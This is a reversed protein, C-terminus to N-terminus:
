NAFRRNRYLGMCRFAILFLPVKWLSNSTSVQLSLNGSRVGPDELLELDLKAVGPFPQLLPAFAFASIIHGDPCGLDRECPKAGGTMAHATSEPPGTHRGLFVLWAVKATTREFRCTALRTKKIWIKCIQPVQVSLAAARSGVSRRYSVLLSNM